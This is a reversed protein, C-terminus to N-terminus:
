CRVRHRPDVPRFDCGRAVRYLPGSLGGNQRRLGIAAGEKEGHQSEPPRRRNPVPISTRTGRVFGPPGAPFKDLTPDDWALDVTATAAWRRSGTTTGDGRGVVGALLPGRKNRDPSISHCRACATFEHREAVPGGAGYSVLPGLLLTVFISGVGVRVFAVTFRM